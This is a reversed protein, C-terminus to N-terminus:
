NQFRIKSWDYYRQGLIGKIVFLVWQNREKKTGSLVKTHYVKAARVGIQEVIQQQQQLPIGNAVALQKMGEETLAKSGVQGKAAPVGVQKVIQQQQQVSIGNADALQKTGKETLAKSGVAGGKM